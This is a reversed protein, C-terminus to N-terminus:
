TRQITELVKKVLVNSSCDLGGQAGETCVQRTTGGRRTDYYTYQLLSAKTAIPGQFLHNIAYTVCHPDIVRDTTRGNVIQFGPTQQKFFLEGPIRLRWRRRRVEKTGIRLKVTLEGINIVTGKKGEEEGSTIFVQDGIRLNANPPLVRLVRRGPSPDLDIVEPRAM